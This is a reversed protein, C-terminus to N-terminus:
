VVVNPPIILSATQKSGRYTDLLGRLEVNQRALVQVETLSLSRHELTKNYKLMAVDLASWIRCMKDAVVNALREWYEHEYVDRRGSRASTVHASHRRSPMSRLEEEVFAKLRRIVEEPEVLGSGEAGGDTLRAVLTDFDSADSVGLALIIAEAQVPGEGAAARVRSEAM